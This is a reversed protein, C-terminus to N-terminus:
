VNFTVLRANTSRPRGISQRTDECLSVFMSVIILKKRLRNGTSIVTRSQRRNFTNSHRSEILTSRTAHLRPTRCNRPSPWTLRRLATWTCARAALCRCTRSGAAPRACRRRQVLSTWREWCARHHQEEDDDLGRHEDGSVDGWQRWRVSTMQRQFM